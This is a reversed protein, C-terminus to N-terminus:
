EQLNLVTKTEQYNQWNTNPNAKLYSAPIVVIRVVMGTPAIPTTNNVRFSYVTLNGISFDFNTTVNAYTDPLPIWSPNQGTTLQRYVMVVGSNVVDATIEPMNISSAYWNFQSNYFWTNLVIPETSIVNANGPPGQPGPVPSENITCATFSLLFIFLLLSKM